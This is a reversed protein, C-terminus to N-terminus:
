FQREDTEISPRRNVVIGNAPRQRERRDMFVLWVILLVGIVVAVDIWAIRGEQHWVTWAPRGHSNLQQVALAICPWLLWIPRRQLLWAFGVDILVFLVHRWVPYSVSYATYKPLVLGLCHYVAACVCGGSALRFATNRSLNM